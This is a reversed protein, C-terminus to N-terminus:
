RAFAIKFFPFFVRTAHLRGRYEPRPSSSDDIKRREDSSSPCLSGSRRLLLSLLQSFDYIDLLLTTIVNTIVVTTLINRYVNQKFMINLDHIICSDIFVM